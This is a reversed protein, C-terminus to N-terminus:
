RRLTRHALPVPTSPRSFCIHALSYTNDAMFNQLINIVQLLLMNSSCQAGSLPAWLLPGIAFGLVFLSIGLTGIIEVVHFEQLVEAIGGSYASSVFAVALTAFAVFMTIGWKLALPYNMPNVPDNDIWTVLFPDEETGSGSYPHNTIDDSLVGQHLVRKFHSIHASRGSELDKKMLYQDPVKFAGQPSSHKVPPRLTKYPVHLYYPHVLRVFQLGANSSHKAQDSRGTDLM